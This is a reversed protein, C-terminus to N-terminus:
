KFKGSIDRLLHPNRTMSFFTGIVSMVMLSFAAPHRVTIFTMTWGLTAFMPWFLRKVIGQVFVFWVRSWDLASPTIITNWRARVLNADIDTCPNSHAKIWLSWFPNLELSKIDYPDHQKMFQVWRKVASIAAETPIAFWEEHVRNCSANTCKYPRRMDSLYTHVLLETRVYRDVDLGFIEECDIECARRISAARKDSSVSRGIKCLHPRKEDRMVYIRGKREGPTLKDSLIRRLSEHMQSITQPIRYGKSRRLNSSPRSDSNHANPDESYDQGLERANAHPVKTGKVPEEDTINQLPVGENADNIDDTDESIPLSAEEDDSIVVVSKEGQLQRQLNFPIPKENDSITDQVLPRQHRCIPDLCERVHKVRARERIFPSRRKCSDPIGTYESTSKARKHSNPREPMNESGLLHPTSHAKENLTAELDQSSGKRKAPTMGVSSAHLESCDESLVDRARSNLEFAM